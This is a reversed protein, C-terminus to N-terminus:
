QTSYRKFLTEIRDRSLAGEHIVVLYRLRMQGGAPVTYSGDKKKDGTFDRVGFPNAANLSYGRAHWTTPHRLNQPHDLLAVGAATGDVMASYHVWRAAKGWIQETGRGGESNVLQAGRDQRFHDSLRFAFGGDETDGFRLAEGADARVVVTADILVANRELRFAFRQTVTGIRKGKSSIMGLRAEFADGATSPKGELVFRSTSKDDKERWFDEGNIDGHGWWIGRHWIHDETEGPKPEVPWGRSLVIGAATRLPFLFPKDWKADHHFSTLPKGDLMVDLRGDAQRFSIDAAMLPWVCVCAALLFRM